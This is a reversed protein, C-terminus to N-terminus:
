ESFYVTFSRHRDALDIDQAETRQLQAHRRKVSGQESGNKRNDQRDHPVPDTTKSFVAKRAVQFGVGPDEVLDKAQACTLHATGGIHQGMIESKSFGHRGAVPGGDCAREIAQAIPRRAFGCEHDAVVTGNDTRGAVCQRVCAFQPVREVSALRIAHDLLGITEGKGSSRGDLYRVEDAPEDKRLWQVPSFEIPKRPERCDVDFGRDRFLAREFPVQRGKREPLDRFAAFILTDEVPNGTKRRQLFAHARPQDQSMRQTPREGFIGINTPKEDTQRKGSQQQHDRQAPAHGFRDGGGQALQVFGGALDACAFPDLDRDLVVVLDAAERGAEIGHDGGDVLALLADDVDPQM